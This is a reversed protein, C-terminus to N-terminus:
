PVEPGEEQGEDDEEEAPEAERRQDDEGGFVRRVWRRFGRERERVVEAGPQEVRREEGARAGPPPGPRGDSGGEWGGDRRGGDGFDRGRRETFYDFFDWRRHVDCVSRPVAGRPYVETVAYPCADTALLGTTPDIVATAIGPPQDFNRYGGPPRVGIVFRSWIPVAARSGSLSTSSNDDYGVWVVTTRDPSYGAFWSDRRDNTTGTKGALPGRVGQRRASAATGHDVVGQLVSTMLYATDPDMVREREPLPQGDLPRGAADLVATLAHVPPRVGGAALVSYVQAMDVATMEFAGLALAPFPELPADVGMRRAMEVVRDLGVQLALRASAANLSDELATRVTVWGHYTGDYNHPSWRQNAQRVTLPSDELFSAPYAKGDAFAASYVVPKFASGAQRLAMGARDFQSGEYDRGGVYALIGGSVPDVSVLASQLPSDGQHGKEWGGELAEIGWAVAEAAQRQDRWDLTSLMQYGADVLREVGYREAAERAVHDAFWPARRRVLPQPDAVVARSAADEAREADVFGREVMRALVWDRRERAAEPAHVPDFNAPSHIMGALTASEALTLEAADKGFYARAAPGVGILNVGRSAGMYIENLYAQLIEPKRYRAELLVALVAERAKRSFTREHTLYLNKVLQQTLTSGGQRVGGGRLNVWAARLTGSPSIGGHRFFNADEAALVARVLDEPLDDILVPRREEMGATYYSAVLVPEMWASPVEAGDLELGLVRAGNHTVRLLAGGVAGKPSPFRRLHVTLEGKARHFAGPPVPGAGDVERYSLEDLEALVRDLDFADGAVLATPRAYLRSPQHTPQDAFQGSLQWFPWILWALGALVVGATVALVLRVRRSRLLRRLKPGPNPSGKM